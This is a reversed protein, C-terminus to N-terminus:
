GKKVNQSKSRKVMLECRHTTQDISVSLERESGKGIVVIIEDTNSKLQWQYHNAPGLHMVWLFEIEKSPFIPGFRRLRISQEVDRQKDSAQYYTTRSEESIRWPTNKEPLLRTLSLAVGDNEILHNERSGTLTGAHHLLWEWYRPKDSVLNDYIMVIDPNVFILWRDFRSILGPYLSAADSIIYNLEKSSENAIFKGAVPQSPREDPGPWGGPGYPGGTMGRGDVLVTNHGITGCDDFCWAEGSSHDGHGLFHAYPWVGSDVILPSKGKSIIFSQIDQHAHGVMQVPGVETPRLFSSIPGSKFGVYLAQDSWDNRTVAIGSTPFVMSKEDDGPPHIPITEDDFLLHWFSGYPILQSLSIHENYELSGADMRRATWALTESRLEYALYYLGIPPIRPPNDSYNFVSGDPLTMHTFYNATALLRPHQFLDIRGGTTYRLARAFRTGFYLVGGWYGPGDEFDGEEPLNDLMDSVGELAFAIIKDKDPIQKLGIAALGAEGCVMMRQNFRHDRQAWFDSRSECVELFPRLCREYIISTFFNEDSTDLAPGLAEMALIMAAATNPSCHDCKRNPNRHKHVTAVWSPAEAFCRMLNLIAKAFREDPQLLQAEILQALDPLSYYPEGELTFLEPKQLLCDAAAHIRQCLEPYNEKAKTRAKVLQDKSYILNWPRREGEAIGEGLLPSLLEFTSQSM